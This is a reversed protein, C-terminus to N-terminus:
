TSTLIVAQVERKKLEVAMENGMKACVQAVTANGSTCFFTPHLKKIKGERELDRMADVPVLRYPNELVEVPFYGTHVIEYDSSKKQESFFSEIEYTCWVTNGRGSLGHPNGKPCLGGDSVLAIECSSPDKISSPPDVKDFKPPIVESTFPEGRIKALLMDVGREASTKETYENKLIGRAFYGDESPKGIREERIFKPNKEGSILKLGINVMRTLDDTMKAASNGTKAIYCSKRYLDVGPNEEYMGTIAPIGLAEEVAKCIAGCSIGYRGAEFAPGAFFLDPKYPKILELAEDTAKDLHSAFYNDGCIITTVVEAKSGLIKQLALGPGVPGKKVKFKMDAKEEKGEQGFFQNLYQVVRMKGVENM